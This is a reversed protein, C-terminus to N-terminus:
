IIHKRGGGHDQAGVSDQFNNIFEMASNFILLYESIKKEIIKALSFIKESFGEEQTHWSSVSMVNWTADPVYRMPAM